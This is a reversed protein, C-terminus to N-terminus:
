RPSTKQWSSRMPARRASGSRMANAPVSLAPFDVRTLARTPSSMAGVSAVSAVRITVQNRCPGVGRTVALWRPPRRALTGIVRRPPSLKSRRLILGASSISRSTSHGASSSMSAVMTSVGPVDDNAHSAESRVNRSSTGASPTGRTSATTNRNRVRFAASTASSLCIPPSTPPDTPARPMMPTADRASSIPAPRMSAISEALSTALRNVRSSFWIPMQWATTGTDPSRASVARVSRWVSNMASRLSAPASRVSSLLARSLTSRKTRRSLGSGTSAPMRACNSSRNPMNPMRIDIATSAAPTVSEVPSAASSSSRLPSTASRLTISWCNACRESM